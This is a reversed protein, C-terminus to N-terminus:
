FYPIRLANKFKASESALSRSNTNPTTLYLMTSSRALVAFSQTVVNQSFRRSRRSFVTECLLVSPVRHLVTNLISCRNVIKSYHLKLVTCSRALVAFSQTVVNQSIRRMRRSFIKMRRRLDALEAPFVRGALM